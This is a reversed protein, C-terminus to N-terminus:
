PWPKISRKSAGHAHRSPHRSPSVQEGDLFVEGEDPVVAGCLAKILTSKGAGNDGIVALIEGPYLEFDCHDLATVKGYRKVLNKASLVPEMLRIGKQDVPRRHCRRHHAHRDAHVDMAPRGRGNESGLEFVGVILAGFFAGVISGRGGFLSIGGIVVATIAQINGIVGTSASPSVSSFRGIMVWAALACIFGALMYVSMLTKHVDVGALEAAEPDDGVAYVHRGWATSRLAYALVVVLLVM